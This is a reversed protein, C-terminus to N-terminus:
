CWRSQWSREWVQLHVHSNSMMLQNGQLAASTLAILCQVAHWSKQQAQLYEHTPCYVAVDLICINSESDPLTCASSSPHLASTARFGSPMVFASCVRSAHM